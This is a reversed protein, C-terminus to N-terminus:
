TSTGAAQKCAYILHLAFRCAMLCFGLPIISQAVWAAIGVDLISGALWEERIFGWAAQALMLCGVLAVLSTVGDLWPQYRPPL